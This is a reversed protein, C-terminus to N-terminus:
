DNSRAFRIKGRTAIELFCLGDELASMEYRSEEDIFERVVIALGHLLPWILDQPESTRCAISGANIWIMDRLADIEKDILRADNSLSAHSKLPRVPDTPSFSNADELERSRQNVARGVGKIM